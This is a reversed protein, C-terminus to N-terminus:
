FLISFNVRKFRILLVKIAIILFYITFLYILIYYFSKLYYLLRDILYYLILLQSDYPM